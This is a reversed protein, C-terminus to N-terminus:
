HSTLCEPDTLHMFIFIFIKYKFYNCLIVRNGLYHMFAQNNAQKLWQLVSKCLISVIDSDTVM